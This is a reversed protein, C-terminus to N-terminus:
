LKIIKRYLEDYLDLLRHASLNWDGYKSSWEKGALSCSLWLEEDTTLKTLCDAIADSTFDRALMGARSETIWRVNASTPTAVVPLGAASFEFLKNPSNDENTETDEYTLFGVKSSGMEKALEERGLWGLDELRSGLVSKAYDLNKNNVNSGAVRLTLDNQLAVAKVVQEFCHAYTASGIFLVSSSAYRPAVQSFEDLRAENGVVIANPNQYRARITETACVVGFARIDILKLCSKIAFGVIKKLHRPLYKRYNEKSEFQLQYDEHADWVVKKNFYSAVIAIPLLEPDHIHWVHERSGFLFKLGVLQSKLFRIVRSVPPAGLSIHTVLDHHKYQGHAVVKIEIREDEALTLCERFYIRGDHVLHATTLHLVKLQPTKTKDEEFLRYKKM